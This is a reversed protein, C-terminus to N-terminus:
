KMILRPAHVLYHMKPIVSATPYLDRFSSHHEEIMMKLYGVEDVSIEPAFLYDWIELMLLYNIWRIDHDPVGYVTDAPKAAVIANSYIHSYFTYQVKTNSFPNQSYM